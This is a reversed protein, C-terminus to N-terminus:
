AAGDFPSWSGEGPSWGAWTMTYAPVISAVPVARVAARVISGCECPGPNEDPAIEIEVGCSVCAFRERVPERRPFPIVDGM